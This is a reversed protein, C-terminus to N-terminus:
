KSESLKTRRSMWSWSSWLLNERFQLSTPHPYISKSLLQHEVTSHLVPSPSSSAGYWLAGVPLITPNSRAVNNSTDRAEVYYLFYSSDGFASQLESASFSCQYVGNSGTMTRNLTPRDIPKARTLNTSWAIFRVADPKIQLNDSVDAKVSLFRMEVYGIEPPINDRYVQWSVTRSVEKPNSGSCYASIMLEYNGPQLDSLPKDQLPFENQATEPPIGIHERRSVTRGDETLLSFIVDVPCTVGRTRPPALKFIINAPTSITDDSYFASPSVQQTTGTITVNVSQLWNELALQTSLDQNQSELDSKAANLERITSSLADVARQHDQPLQVLAWYALLGNSVLLVLIILVLFGHRQPLRPRSTPEAVRVSQPRAQSSSRSLVVRYDPAGPPPAERPSPSVIGLLKPKDEDTELIIWGSCKSTCTTWM